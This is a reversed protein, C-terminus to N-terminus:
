SRMGHDAQGCSKLLNQLQFEQELDDIHPVIQRQLEPLKGKAGAVIRSRKILLQKARETLVVKGNKKHIAKALQGTISLYDSLEDQDLYTLVPYYYYRTLMQSDIADKLSYAICKKGFYEALATTGSEDNHRDIALHYITKM